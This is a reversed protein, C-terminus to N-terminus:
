KVTKNAKSAEALTRILKEEDETRVPINSDEWFRTTYTAGSKFLTKSKLRQAKAISKQTHIDTQLTVFDSVFENKQSFRKSSFDLGLNATGQALVPIGDVERFDLDITLGVIRATIGLFNKESRSLSDMQIRIHRIKDSDTTVWGYYLLTNEEPKSKPRIQYEILEPRGADRKMQFEYLVMKESFFRNLINLNQFEIVKQVDLPSILDFIEDGEAPLDIIRGTEIGIQTENKDATFNAFLLADSYKSYTNNSRVMERYYFRSSFSVRMREKERDIVSTLYEAPSKGVVSVEELVTTRPTLTIVSIKKELLELVHIVRPYYNIHSIVLSDIGASSSVTLEFYGDGNSATGINAGQLALHAFPIKHRTEGDEIVGVIKTQTFVVCGSFVLLSTLFIRIMNLSCACNSGSVRWLCIWDFFGAVAM